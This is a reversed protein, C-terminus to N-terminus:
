LGNKPVIGKSDAYQKLILPFDKEYDGSPTFFGAFRVEKAEADIVGLMIPVGAKHAIHYFGSKWQSVKKRTGEPAIILSLSQNAKFENVMQGVVNFSKNRDIPIGGFWRSIGGLVPPFLSNKGMWKVDMKTLFVAALMLLFDWNSTHPAGIVVYPPKIDPPPIVKWGSLYLGLISLGRCLSKIIPTNFVSAKM